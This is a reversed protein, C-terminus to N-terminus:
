RVRRPVSGDPRACARRGRRRGPPRRSARSAPPAGGRPRGTVPVSRRAASWTAAAASAASGSIVGARSGRARRASPRGPRRAGPRPAPRRARRGCPVPAARVMSRREARARRPIAGAPPCPGRRPGTAPCAGRPDPEVAVVAIGDDVVHGAPRGDEEGLALRTSASSRGRTATTPVRAAVGCPSASARALEAREEGLRSGRHHAPERDADVAGRVVPRERGAAGHDADDRGTEVDLVRPTM